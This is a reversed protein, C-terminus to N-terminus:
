FSSCPPPSPRPFLRPIGNRAAASHREAGGSLAFRAEEPEGEEIGSPFALKALQKANEIEDPNPLRESFAFAANGRANM